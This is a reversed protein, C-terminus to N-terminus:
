QAATVHVTGDSNAKYILAKQNSKLPSDDETLATFDFMRGQVYLRVNGPSTKSIPLKVRSVKGVLADASLQSTTKLRKTAKKYLLGSTVGIGGAVLFGIWSLFFPLILALILGSGGFMTAAISWFRLSAFPLGHLDLDSELHDGTLQGILNLGLGVIFSILYTLM